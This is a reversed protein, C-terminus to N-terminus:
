ADIRTRELLEPVSFPGTGRLGTVLADAPSYGQEVLPILPDLHARETRGRADRLNRHDLGDAAIELLREALSRMPIGGISADLARTV